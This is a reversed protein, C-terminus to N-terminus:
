LTELEPINRADGQWVIIGDKMLIARHARKALLRDHTILIVTKGNHHLQELLDMVAKGSVSDLNGTPEDAFVIEPENVLARAVAVRQREGGSLQNPEYTLRSSLGVADIQKEAMKNWLRGSTTSYALPLKVNELVSTRALLHFSQFIFGMTKNRLAAIEEESLTTTDKGNLVYTGSTQPDLLGLIQLLTSKGCGSPGVIALFDGKEVTLDIGRLVRTSVDGTTFSKELNTIKILSM